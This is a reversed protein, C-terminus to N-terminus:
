NDVQMEVAEVKDVVMDIDEMHVVEVYM